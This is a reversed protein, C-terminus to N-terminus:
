DYLQRLKIRVLFSHLSMFFAIVFGPYGDLFGMRWIYNYFFKGVPFAFVKLVPATIGQSRFEEADLTSWRNIHDIFEEITQHPFHLIPHKLEGIRGTASIHWKEHVRRHWLGATKQGLLIHSVHATEGFRLKRGFLVDQQNIRYAKYKPPGALLVQIERKLAPSVRHDADVFLVWDSRAKKLGLNRLYAFNDQSSRIIKLKPSPIIKEARNVTDDTSNDILIIEDCWSITKLCAIINASENHALVIATIM